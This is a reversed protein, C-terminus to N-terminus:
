RPLGAPWVLEYDRPDQEIWRVSDDIRPKLAEWLRLTREDQPDFLDNRERPDTATDFVRVPHGEWRFQLVETGQRVSLVPGSYVSAMAFRIRDPEALGVPVGTVSSPIPLDYLALLTPAIDTQHVPEEWAGQVINKSWFWAVGDAETAFLLHGHETYGHEWLAEGHDSWFVVLTDDLYGYRDLELWLTNLQDDLYRVEAAYRARMRDKIAAEVEPPLRGGSVARVAATQGNVSSLDFPVEPLGELAELYQFPPTYPRHPEFFHLHLFWPSAMARGGFDPVLRERAREWADIVQAPGDYSVENYGQANNHLNSFFGNTTVLMSTFGADERLWQPLTPEGDPIRVVTNGSATPIMGRAPARELNGAGTMVCLTTAITWNSCADVNELVYSQSALADLFPTDSGGGHRGIADRRLTDVSIMLLNTPVPGDFQIQLERPGEDGGCGVGLLWAAFWM